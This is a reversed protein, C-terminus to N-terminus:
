RGTLSFYLAETRDVMIATSFGRARERAALSFRTLRDPDSAAAAIADALEQASGPAVLWGCRGDEVVEPLGGVRTAVVARGHAMALLAASGLGEARSPMILLDIASFFPTLDEIPGLFKVNGRSRERAQAAKAIIDPPADGVLLLRVHRSSKALLQVAEIASEQGKEPTFAGIQGAVL